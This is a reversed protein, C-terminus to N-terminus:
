PRSAIQLKSRLSAFRQSLLPKTFVDAIQDDTSIFQVSLKKEVVKTNFQREVVIMFQKFVNYVDSKHKLPFIWMYRSFDDVCLLFYNHGDSSTIPAPGWVDCFLLDLFHTSKYNSSSLHLKSSKGIHCSNCFSSSTKNFVPLNYRSLMTQLLQSHPHGLRQHWIDSSACVTTFAVKPLSQLQPLLLSYLGNNSPGTLLTTRTFKDKVAFFTSHFEFFVHNDQCFKQVSLLNRKIQPVHLINSLSFTKSPSFFRSSGIHLIPLGKGNGVRLTDDGYYPEHSDLSSADQAVHNNSGTDPLWTNFQQSRYDAFNASPQQQRPKMTAPDRNPCQSPIHGIGCRNCTGYVTNQNSAWSFQNKNGGTQQNNFSGRGRRSQSGRGWSNQPRSAFFAQAPQPSLSQLQFGLRSALQQLTQMTDPQSSSTTTTFAQAPPVVPASKLLSHLNSVM